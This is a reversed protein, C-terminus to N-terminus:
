LNRAADWIKEWKDSLLNGLGKNEGQGPLIDGDPEVYLWARGAGEPKEFNDEMELEMAVPNLNSYPVPIDWILDLDLNNTHERAVQLEESLSKDNESLSIASVGAETLKDILEIAQHANEKTLTLHAAVFIDEDLTESWYAFNTLSEWSSKDDPQIIIMTHDLGAQLLLNLYKTDGLKKGDTLLGTVQGNNEAHEILDILDDRLTPEGGTFLIHPIGAEWAKDIISKWEVTTLERDVRKTPASEIPAGEPLRYTLACDLRYPASINDSFPIHREIDLFSVPDLDPTYILTEIQENFKIYDEKVKKRSINYRSTIESIIEEEPTEHVLYYAYEAATENLHLITSANIVLLGNGETELRLHLRYNLPNEPPSKYHHIGTPLPKIPIPKKLFRQIFNTMAVERRRRLRMCMGCLRMCVRM